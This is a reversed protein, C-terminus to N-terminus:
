EMKGKIWNHVMELEEKILEHDMTDNVHYEYFKSDKEYIPDFYMQYSM